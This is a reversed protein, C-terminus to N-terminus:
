HGACALTSLTKTVQLNMKMMTMTIIIGFFGQSGSPAPIAIVVEWIPIHFFCSCSFYKELTMGPGQSAEM